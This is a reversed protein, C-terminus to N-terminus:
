LRRTTGSQNNNHSTGQFQLPLMTWFSLWNMWTQHCNAFITWWVWLHKKRWTTSAKGQPHTLIKAVCPFASTSFQIWCASILKRSPPCSSCVVGSQCVLGVHKSPKVMQGINQSFCTKMEQICPIIYTNHLNHISSVYLTAHLKITIHYKAYLMCIRRAIDSITNIAFWSSINCIM